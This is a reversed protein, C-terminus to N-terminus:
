SPAGQGIKLRDFVGDERLQKVATQCQKRSLKYSAHGLAYIREPDTTNFREAIVTVNSKITDFDRPDDPGNGRDQPPTLPMKKLFGNPTQRISLPSSSEFEGKGVGLATDKKEEEERTHNPHPYLGAAIASSNSSKQEREAIANAENKNRRVEASKSGAVSRKKSIEVAHTRHAELRTNYLRGDREQFKVSVQPWFRAFARKDWRALKCLKTPDTPLSGLSWQHGLLTLYLSAEEGEWDATSASFDGFFLPMFPQQAQTTM